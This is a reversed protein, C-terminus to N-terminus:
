GSGNPSRRRARRAASHSGTARRASDRSRHRPSTTSRRIMSTFWEPTCGREWRGPGSLPARNSRRPSAWTPTANALAVAEEDTAFTMVPAVPGFIEEAWAPMDPTLDGRVTAPFFLGDRRGGSLTRAGAELTADVIRQVSAAQRENIIPGLAVPDTYPNGVQLRAALEALKELYQEPSASTSSTGGRRWASRARTVFLDGRELRPRRTWIPTTSCSSRTTAASNWRWGNSTAARRRGSRAGSRPRAPSSIKHANPDSVLAEGADPGGCFVSLVGEPLGAREFIRAVVVGGSVPTNPDSKLLVANGLAIAPAVSRMELILPFNWPAIVGVVGVPVRRAISTRGPTLSPLLLGTEQSCLGAGELCDGISARVEFQAKSRISGAERVIWEIIEETNQELAAAGACMVVAREAFPTQAWQM